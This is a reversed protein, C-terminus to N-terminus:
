GYFHGPASLRWEQDFNRKITFNLREVQGLPVIERGQIGLPFICQTKRNAFQRAGYM